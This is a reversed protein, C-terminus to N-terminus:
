AMASQRSAHGVTFAVKFKQPVTSGDKPSIFNVKANAPLNAESATPASTQTQLNPTSPASPATASTVATPPTVANETHTQASEAGVPSKGTLASHSNRLYILVIIVVCLCLLVPALIKKM